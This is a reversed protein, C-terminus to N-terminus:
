QTGPTDPTDPISPTKPTSLTSTTGDSVEDQWQDVDRLCADEKESQLSYTKSKQPYVIQSNLNLCPSKPLVPFIRRPILPGLLHPLIVDLQSRSSSNVNQAIKGDSGTKPQPTRISQQQQQQDQARRSRRFTHQFHLPKLRVPCTQMHTHFRPCLPWPGNERNIN